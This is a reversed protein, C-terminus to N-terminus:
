VLDTPAVDRIGTWYDSFLEQYQELLAAVANKAHAVLDRPPESIMARLLEISFEVCSAIYAVDLAARFCRFEITDPRAPDFYPGVDIIRRVEDDGEVYTRGDVTKYAEWFEEETQCAIFTLLQEYTFFSIGKWYTALPVLLDQVLRIRRPLVAVEHWDLDNRFSRKNDLCREEFLLVIKTSNLNERGQNRGRAMALAPDLGASGGFPLRSVASARPRM